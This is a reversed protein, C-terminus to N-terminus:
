NQSVATIILKYWASKEPVLSNITMRKGRWIINMDPTINVSQPYRIVIEYPNGSVLQEAMLRKYGTMPWVRAWCEYLPEETGELNGNRAQTVTAVQVFQVRETLEGINM